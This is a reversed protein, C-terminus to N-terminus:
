TPVFSAFPAGHSHVTPLCDGASAFMTKTLAAGNELADRSHILGNKTM